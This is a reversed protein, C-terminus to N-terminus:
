GVTGAIKFIPLYMAVIIVGIVVGMILMIAPEIATTVIKMREELEDELYDSIDILMDELGGTTEGVGLMRLALPPMINIRELAVSLRGGEEIFRVAEFLKKEMFVNDLTGISMRLSEIIPIGSGLVTALTRTFGSVSYKTMVDGFLPVTLKFRDFIFHGKETKKWTQFLYILLATVALIVLFLRRLLGTFTILLQTLLPLQSGSDAYVQSFTPVVYVLLLTIALGAFVVLIAPYLLAAVIKKRIGDVRKLYQIYRRITQPLDGTREGARISAVYLYPFVTGHKEMAVSLAAGSKVDERVQQLVESLKGSDHRELITDLVQMIPMGAKILVLVEQNFTLLSKNDIKRRKVGKDFLFQFPKKKLEFVFYGQDELSKKLVAADAAELDRYTIKGDSAGIKCTFLAM